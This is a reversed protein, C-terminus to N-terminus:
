DNAIENLRLYLTDANYLKQDLIIDSLTITNHNLGHSCEHHCIHMQYENSYNWEIRAKPMCINKGCVDCEVYEVYKM